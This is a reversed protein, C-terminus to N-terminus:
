QTSIGVVTNDMMMPVLIMSESNIVGLDASGQNMDMLLEAQGEADVRYLAGSMWDTVYWGNKGDSELGDLNGIPDGSGLTVISKDSLNVKLLHGPVKTTFDEQLEKGWPAVLLQNGDVQLGNPHQLAEEQLWISFNEDEMKYISNDLMDSVYIGGENDVALDNLFKADEATWTETIEAKNVDIAILRNIDSVYLMNGHQVMGKPADLGDIWNLNELTGDKNLRSIFGNGDKDGPGGNVNSVYIIDHTADYLTSEPNMFGETTWLETVAYVATSFTSAVALLLARTLLFRFM